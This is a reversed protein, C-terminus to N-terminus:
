WVITLWDTLPDTVSLCQWHDSEPGIFFAWSPGFLNLFPDFIAMFLTKPGLTKTTFFYKLIPCVRGGRGKASLRKKAFFYNIKGRRILEAFYSQVPKRIFAISKLQQPFFFPWYGQIFVKGESELLKSFSFLLLLVFSILAVTRAYLLLAFYSFDSLM